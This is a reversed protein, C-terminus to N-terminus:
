FVDFSECHPSIKHICHIHSIIYSTLGLSIGSFEPLPSDRDIYYSSFGKSLLFAGNSILSVCFVLQPYHIYSSLGLLLGESHILSNVYSLFWIFIFAPLITDLLCGESHILSNVCAETKLTSHIPRFSTM